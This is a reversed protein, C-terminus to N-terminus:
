SLRTSVMFKTEGKSLTDTIFCVKQLQEVVRHLLKPQLITILSYSFSCNSKHCSFMKLVLKRIIQPSIGIKRHVSYTSKGKLLFNM